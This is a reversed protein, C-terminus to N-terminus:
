GILMLPKDSLRDHLLDELLKTLQSAPTQRAAGRSRGQAYQVRKASPATSRLNCDENIQVLAKCHPAAVTTRGRM